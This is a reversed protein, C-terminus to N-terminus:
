GQDKAEPITCSAAGAKCGQGDACGCDAKQRRQVLLYVGGVLAFLVVAAAEGELAALAGGAAVGGLLVPALAVGVCAAACGAAVVMGQKVKSMEM